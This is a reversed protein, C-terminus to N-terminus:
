FHFNLSGEEKKTKTELSNAASHFDPKLVSQSIFKQPFNQPDWAEEQREPAFIKLAAFIGLTFGALFISFFLM